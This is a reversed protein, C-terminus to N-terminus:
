YPWTGGIRMGCTCVNFATEALKKANSRKPWDKSYIAKSQVYGSAVGPFARHIEAVLCRGWETAVRLRAEVPHTKSPLLGNARATAIETDVLKIKALVDDCCMRLNIRGTVFCTKTALVQVLMAMLGNLRDSLENLAPHLESDSLAGVGLTTCPDVSAKWLLRDFEDIPPPDIALVELLLQLAKQGEQLSNVPAAVALYRKVGRPLSCRQRRPIRLECQGARPGSVLGLCEGGRLNVLKWGSPAPRWVADGWMDRGGLYISIPNGPVRKPGKSGRKTM